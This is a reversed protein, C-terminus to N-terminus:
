DLVILGLREKVLRLTKEAVVSAKEAGNKLIQNIYDPAQTIEKYKARIPSIAGDVVELVGKKLDGYGKGIFREEIVEKSENTLAQYITLLNNVGAREDEASFRIEASSDTVARMIKKKLKDPEDLLYIAHGEVSESKSMKKLPNDLGMIRAGEKPIMAEPVTFTDGFASNFRIALDRTLELHQRQDDGVPVGYAQYLLIDAAMLSPYILLGAGVSDQQQKAAKDKFQTMRNLWGLPTMCTMLWGLEAHAHIHSQLFLTCKNPDLGAAIYVAIGERTRELLLKPDQPVTLGHLDVICYFCDFEEQDDVWHKLAGIYNGITLNGSPQMGSLLRRKNM